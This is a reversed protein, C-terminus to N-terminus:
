HNVDLKTFLSKCEDSATFAAVKALLSLIAAETMGTPLSGSLRIIAPATEGTTANVVVTEEFRATPRAVGKDGNRGLKPYERSLELTDKMSFNHTPAVYRVSNPSISDFTYTKTLITISM